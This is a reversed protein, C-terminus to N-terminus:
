IFSKWDEVTVSLVTIFIEKTINKPANMIIETFNIGLLLVALHPLFWLQSMWM